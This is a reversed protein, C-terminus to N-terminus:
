HYSYKSYRCRAAAYHWYASDTLYARKAIMACNMPFGREYTQGYRKVFEPVHKKGYHKHRKQEWTAQAAPASAILGSLAVGFATAVVSKRM